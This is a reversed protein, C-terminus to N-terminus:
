QDRFYNISSFCWACIDPQIKIVPQDIVIGRSLLFKVNFYEVVIDPM